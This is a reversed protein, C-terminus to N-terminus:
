HPDQLLVETEEAVLLQQLVKVTEEEWLFLDRIKYIENVLFVLQFISEAFLDDLIDKCLQNIRLFNLLNLFLANLDLLVCVDLLITQELTISKLFFLSIDSIDQLSQILDIILLEMMQKEFHQQILL